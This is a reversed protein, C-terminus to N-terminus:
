FEGNKRDKKKNQKLLCVFYGKFDLESHESVTPPGFKQVTGTRYRVAQVAANKPLLAFYLM